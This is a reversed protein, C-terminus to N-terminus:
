GGKGRQAKVTNCKQLEAKNCKQVQAIKSTQAEAKEYKQGKERGCKRGQARKRNRFIGGKQVKSSESRMCNHVTADQGKELGARSPKYGLSDLKKTKKVDRLM